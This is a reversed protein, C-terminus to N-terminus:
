VTKPDMKKEKKANHSWLKAQRPRFIALFSWSTLALDLYLCFFTKFFTHVLNLSSFINQSVSFFCYTRYFQLKFLVTSSFIKNRLDTNECLQLVTKDLFFRLIM